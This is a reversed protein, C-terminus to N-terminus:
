YIQGRNYEFMTLVENLGNTKCFNEVKEWSLYHFEENNKVSFDNIDNESSPIIGIYYAKDCAVMNFAKKVIANDGIKRFDNFYPDNIGKNKDIELWNDILLKKLNLQFFLNSSYSNYKEERIFNNYQKTLSWKKSQITKVKGEIFLVIKKNLPKEYEIIIVLDADGFRSFSQELLITFDKPKKLQNLDQINILEIFKTLLTKDNGINFILSNIIGRESYGLIKM